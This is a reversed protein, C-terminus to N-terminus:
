QDALLSLHGRNDIPLANIAEVGVKAPGRYHMLSRLLCGTSGLSHAACGALSSVRTAEM